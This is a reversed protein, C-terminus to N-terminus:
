SPSSAVMAPVTFTVPATATVAVDPAALWALALGADPAPTAEVLTPTPAATASSMTLSVVDTPIAPVATMAPAGLRVNVAVATSTAAVVAVIPADPPSTPRAGATAIVSVVTSVEVWTSTSERFVAMASGPESVATATCVAVAVLVEPETTVPALEAATPKDSARVMAFSRTVAVVDRDIVACPATLKEEIPATTVEAAAVAEAPPAGSPVDVVAPVSGVVEPVLPDPTSVRTADSRLWASVTADAALVDPDPAVEVGDADVEPPGISAAAATPTSMVVVTERAPKVPLPSTSLDVPATVKEELAL